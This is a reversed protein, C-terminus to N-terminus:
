RRTLIESAEATRPRPVPPSGAPRRVWGAVVLLQGGVYAVTAVVAPVPVEVAGTLRVALLAESLVLLALGLGWEPGAWRTLRAAIAYCALCGGLAVVRVVAAPPALSAVDAITALALGAILWRQPREGREAAAFIVVGTLLPMLLPATAWALSAPGRATAM